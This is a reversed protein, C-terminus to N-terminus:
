GARLATTVPLRAARIAPFLGGLLGIMLGVVLGSVVLGATVQFSFVVQTFNSGLTSVSFNNFLLWSIAAGLLGGLLALLMAEVLVAMAVPFGAFGIARLTAIQRTRASVAAYMTNIAAFLAGLGMIIAVVLALVRIGGTAQDSQGSFYDLESQVDVNLQPNSKLQEGFVDIQEPTDFQAIVSSVGPRNFATQATALDAWLESDHSDGSEFAGVVEWDGGRFRLKTGVGMGEFTRMAGKGVVLQQLGPEFMRGEVLRVEPRMSFSAAEVGRVTVNVSGGRAKSPFESVVILEGAALPVGAAGVRIGPSDKIVDIETRSLISNLESGSGGRMVLARIPSGTARLTEDFGKAMALLAVLVGVVGAIGVVIVATLGLRSGLSRLNLGTISIIQKFM